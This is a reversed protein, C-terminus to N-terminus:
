REVGNDSRNRQYSGNKINKVPRIIAIDSKQLFMIKFALMLILCPVKLLTAKAATM